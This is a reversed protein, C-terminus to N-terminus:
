WCFLGAHESSGSHLAATSIMSKDTYSRLLVFLVFLVFTLLFVSDITSASIRLRPLTRNLMLAYADM